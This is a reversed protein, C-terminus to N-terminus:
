EIVIVKREIVEGGQQLKLFYLGSPINDIKGTFYGAGIGKMKRIVRGDVRYLSLTYEGNKVQCSFVITNKNLPSLYLSVGKERVGQVPGFSGRLVVPSSCPNEYLDCLTIGDPTITDGVAITPSSLYTTFNVLLQTGDQNWYCEGLAGAGDLWSHNGSLHLVSDINEYNIETKNMPESFYLIVYDDDDVGSVSNVGDFAVASDLLPPILDKVYLPKYISDNEPVMDSSLIYFGIGMDVPLSPASWVDFSVVVSDGPALNYVSKMDSYVPIGSSDICATIDFSLTDLYSNNKVLVQPTYESGICVTEPSIVSLLGADVFPAYKVTFYDYALGNYTGGTVYICGTSDLAIGYAYDNEGTDLMDTWLTNGSSDYKLTFYDRTTGNHSTGTIYVNGDPGFAIDYAEDNNGNDVTKGWLLSGSSDYKVTLFDNDDGAYLCSYGTAYVNGKEDVAIGYARDDYGNDFTRIWVTDGSSNYKVSLFNYDTDYSSYGCVYLNGKRDLAIAYGADSYGMDVTDRWVENGSSDYKVTFCDYDTGIYSYGTVYVNGRDDVGIGYAYDVSGNDLIKQWVINGSSDYKVTLYDTNSGNYFYGTIYTNGQLDVAVDYAKDLSGNDITDAWLINGSSDYKVTFYDYDGNIYSFGTIHINGKRDVAIKEACDEDGNDLVGSWVISYQPAYSLVPLLFFALFSFRRM